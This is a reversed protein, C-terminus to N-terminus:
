VAGLLAILSNLTAALERGNLQSLATPNLLNSIGCLLDGLLGGGPVATIDLVIVRNANPGGGLRVHLGLLNLDIPGLVLHLIPCAPRQAAQVGRSTLSAPMMVGSRRVRHGKLRGKLTGVSWVKGGRAVFRQIGYTGRFKKGNRAVGKVAMTYLPAVSKAKSSAATASSAGAAPVGVVGLALSAVVVTLIIRLRMM